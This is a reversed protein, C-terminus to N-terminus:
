NSYKIILLIVYVFYIAWGAGYASVCWLIFRKRHGRKVFMLAIELVDVLFVILGIFAVPLMTVVQYIGGM